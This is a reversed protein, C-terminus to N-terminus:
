KQYYEKWKMELKDFNNFNYFVKALAEEIEDGKRLWRLMQSFKYKGYKSIIFNVISFSELYFLDVYDSPAKNLSGITVKHLQPLKIYTNDKIKERLLYLSSAYNNSGYKSEMYTAVGEDLWLALKNEGIYESFIIHTLEHVLITYFKEQDPYTYIIKARHNVCAASWGSCNFSNLYDDRDNAIFIKARNEWIWFKDRYFNFDQTIIRYYKEAINKLKTIYAKDVGKKYNIIFHESRLQYFEKEKAYVLFNQGALTGLSSSFISLILAATLIRM